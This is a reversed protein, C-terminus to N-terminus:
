RGRARIYEEIMLSSIGPGGRPVINRAVWGEDTKEWEVDWNTLSAGDKMSAHVGLTARIIEDPLETADLSTIRVNKVDAYEAATRTAEVVRDRGAFVSVTVNPHLLTKMRNWDRAEVSSVLAQTKKMVKERESDLFYSAVALLVGLSIVIIGAIKLKKELRNNGTVLLILGLLAIGAPLWWPTEYIYNM